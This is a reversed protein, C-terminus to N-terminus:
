QKNIKILSILTKAAILFFIMGLFMLFDHLVAIPPIKEGVELVLILLGIVNLTIGIDILLFAKKTVGGMMRQFKLLWIVAVVGTASGIYYFLFLNSALFPALEM